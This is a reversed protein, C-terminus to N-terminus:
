EESRGCIRFQGNPPCSEMVLRRAEDHSYVVGADYWGAEQTYFMVTIEVTIEKSM